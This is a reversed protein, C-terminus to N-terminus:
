YSSFANCKCCISYITSFYRFFIAYKIIDAIPIAPMCEQALMPLPGCPPGRSMVGGFYMKLVGSLLATFAFGCFASIM